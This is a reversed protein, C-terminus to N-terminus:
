DVFMFENSLLLVQAYKEWASLPEPPPEPPGSFDKKGNWEGAYEASSGGVPQEKLRIVPVWKFDDSNLNANFDVVFDITDGKKVELSEIKTEAKDNHLTWSGLSGARSSVIRGRIGDGEKHEHSLTGSVSVVGDRPATWRRLAAHQLDNGAHGGEATLRVWGLKEDPWKPGGQWSEDVFHPLPVFSKVRQTPEDFEGFGYQWPSVVPKPPEPPPLSDAEALFERGLEVQRATPPRQFVLRYLDQIRQKPKRLAAVESRSTLARAREVVFPSNMFFLAQQPVTTDLRQPNHMDPNAFDFVRFVGPLFQRDIFGYVTRRLASPKKFLEVPKGGANMDLEGSVALLSDRMSEFDLRERNFHWLLRNEPDVTAASAPHHPALSSSFEAPRRINGGRRPSLAPTLALTEESRMELAHMRDAPQSADHRISFSAPLKVVQLSSAQAVDSSQQYVASLMILRHLKKISWGDAMFRCALWDLLEPHTPPECRTGFDSPTRVLGAGFHHLWIRNVMVRATLPNDKSSIANALELRGSGRTFPKRKEGALIGLFQRPVEEGKNAPNGRIFVRPNRQTPRDELIVAYPPSASKIIWRDIEAQLKALEVRGTEDFFWELDVIAGHPVLVPADAAYLVQRLEEQNADPLALPAPTKDERAKKVLALWTQHATVLLEGYRRAVERM